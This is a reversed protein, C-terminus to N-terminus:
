TIDYMIAYLISLLVQLSGPWSFRVLHPCFFILQKLSPLIQKMDVLLYAVSKDLLRTQKRM